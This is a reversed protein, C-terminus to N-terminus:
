DTDRRGLACPGEEGDHVTACYKNKIVIWVDCYAQVYTEPHPCARDGMDLTRASIQGDDGLTKCIDWAKSGPGAYHVFDFTYTTQTIRTLQAQPPKHLSAVHMGRTGCYSPKGPRPGNVV